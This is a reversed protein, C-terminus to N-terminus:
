SKLTVLLLFHELSIEVRMRKKSLGKKCLFKAPVIVRWKRRNQRFVLVPIPNKKTTQSLAQEWWNNILLREQRKVEIAFPPVSIIDAGGDRVQDINREVPLGIHEELIKCFQREGCHGKTRVQISMNVHEM